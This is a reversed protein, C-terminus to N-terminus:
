RRSPGAREGVVAVELLVLLRDEVRRARQAVGELHHRARDRRQAHVGLAHARAASSGSSSAVSRASASTRSPTGTGRPARPPRALDDACQTSASARDACARARPGARTGDRTGPPRRRAARARARARPARAAPRCPARARARPARRPPPALEGRSRSASSPARARRPRSSARSRERQERERQERERQPFYPGGTRALAAAFGSRRRAATGRRRRAPRLRRRSRRALARGVLSLRRRLRRRSGLQRKVLICPAPLSKTTSSPRRSASGGSSGSARAGRAVAVEADAEVLQQHHPGRAGGVEAHLDVVGVARLHLHARVADAGEVLVQAVCAVGCRSSIARRSARAADHRRAPGPGVAHRTSMPRASGRARSSGSAARRRPSPGPARRAARPPRALRQAHRRDRHPVRVRHEEDVVDVGRRDLREARRELAVGRERVAHVDLEHLTTSGCGRAGACRPARRRRSARRRCRHRRRPRPISGARRRRGRADRTSSRPPSSSIAHAPPSACTTCSRARPRRDEAARMSPRPPALTNSPTKVASTVGNRSPATSSRASRSRTSSCIAAPTSPRTGHPEVPSAAVSECASCRRTTSTTTRRPARGRAPGRPCRSSCCRALRDLERLVRLLGAGVAREEDRGVVVLRRWSPM